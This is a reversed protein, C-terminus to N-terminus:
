VTTAFHRRWDNKFQRRVKVGRDRLAERVRQLTREPDHHIGRSTVVVLRYGLQDLEERRYIDREWQSTSESHHRGDYEILLKIDRYWLDFRLRWSGDPARLILNVDPEPLGALVILLRTRTEM